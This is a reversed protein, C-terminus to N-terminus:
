AVDIDLMLIDEIFMETNGSNLIDPGNYKAYAYDNLIEKELKRADYGNAYEWSKIITIYQMEYSKFRKKVSNNTIGVKWFTRGDKEIRIYYFIGPKYDKFGFANKKMHICISNLINNNLAYYYYSFDKERFETRSEYKSAKKKLVSFPITGDTYLKSFDARKFHNNKTMHSCIKELIKYKYAYYFASKENDKFEKKTKYKKAILTVEKEKKVQMNDRTKKNIKKSIYIDMHKCINDIFNHSIAYEYLGRSHKKFESRKTHNLAEIRAMELSYKGKRTFTRKSSMHSCIQSLYNNKYAWQYAGGSKERFDKKNRYKLAEKKVLKFSWGM